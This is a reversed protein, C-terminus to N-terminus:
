TALFKRKERCQKSIRLMCIRYTIDCAEKGGQRPEMRAAPSAFRRSTILTGRHESRLLDPARWGRWAAIGAGRSAFKARLFSM